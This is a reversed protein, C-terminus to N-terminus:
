KLLLWGGQEKYNWREQTASYVYLNMFSVVFKPLGKNSCNVYKEWDFPYFDSSCRKTINCFIQVFSLPFAKESPKELKKRRFLTMKCFLFPMGFSCLFVVSFDPWRVLVDGTKKPDKFSVTIKPARQIVFNTKLYSFKFTCKKLHFQFFFRPLASKRLVLFSMSM